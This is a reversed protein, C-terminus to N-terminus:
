AIRLSISAAASFKQSLETVYKNNTLKENINLKSFSDINEIKLNIIKEINNKLEQTVQDGFAYISEIHGEILNRSYFEGTIELILKPIDNVNKFSNHNEFILDKKSFILVSLDSNEIYISLKIKEDANHQFLLSSAIHANDITKLHLNNRLCFKHIQKLIEKRICFVLIRKTQLFNLSSLVIKQFAFDSSKEEPFIKSIEWNIYDNVDNKTLNKDVPIEFITFYSSPITLSVKSSIIPNRLIIENFSNQLIHIFKAEKTKDSILEEFFEQDVNELFLDNDKKVIEVLQIKDNTINLGVQNTLLTM